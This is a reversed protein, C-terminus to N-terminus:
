SDTGVGYRQGFATQVQYRSDGIFPPTAGDVWVQNAMFVVYLRSRVFGLQYRPSAFDLMSARRNVLNTTAADLNEAVYYWTIKTAIDTRAERIPVAESLPLDADATTADTTEGGAYTLHEGTFAAKEVMDGTKVVEELATSVPELRWSQQLAWEAFSWHIVGGFRGIGRFFVRPDFGYGTTTEAIDLLNRFKLINQAEQVIESIHLKNATADPPTSPTTPSNPAPTATLMEANPPPSADVKLLERRATISTQALEKLDGNHVPLFGVPPLLGFHDHAIASAAQSGSVLGEAQDQFQRFRAQGEAVRRDSTTVSWESPGPDTETVRRRVSWNDLDAVTSGDWGFVALPVDYATLDAPDLSDLGGYAPDFSFPDAGLQSLQATGFCWHAVLNRRNDPTVDIDDIVEDIPLAIVRFEVGEVQWQAACCPSLTQGPAPALPSSGELKCAPRAALVYIGSTLASGEGDTTTTTCCAFDAPNTGPGTIAFSLELVVTSAVLVPSGSRALALGPDVKLKTGLGAVWLGRVIGAGAAEGIRTDRLRLSTQATALDEAVLLRGNVYNPLLAGNTFDSGVLQSTM